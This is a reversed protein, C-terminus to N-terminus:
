SPGPVQYAPFAAPGIGDWLSAAEGSESWHGSQAMQGLSARVPLPGGGWM